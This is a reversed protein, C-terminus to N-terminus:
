VKDNRRPVFDRRPLGAPAYPLCGMPEADRMVIRVPNGRGEPECHCYHTHGRDPASAASIWLTGSSTPM